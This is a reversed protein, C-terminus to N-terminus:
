EKPEVYGGIVPVKVEKDGDKITVTEAELKKQCDEPLLKFISEFKAKFVRSIFNVLPYPSEGSHFIKDVKDLCNREILEKLFEIILDCEKEMYAYGWIRGKELENIKDVIQGVKGTLDTNEKKPDSRFINILNSVIKVSNAIKTDFEDDKASKYKAFADDIETFWKEVEAM